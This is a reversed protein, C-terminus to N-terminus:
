CGIGVPDQSGSVQCVRQPMPRKLNAAPSAQTLAAVPTLVHPGANGDCHLISTYILWKQFSMQEGDWATRWRHQPIIDAHSGGFAKFFDVKQHKHSRVNPLFFFFNDFEKM